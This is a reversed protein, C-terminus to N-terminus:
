LIGGQPPGPPHEKEIYRYIMKLVGDMNRKIDIDLFRLVNIGLAELRNQRVRDASIKYNHSEGGMEIALM